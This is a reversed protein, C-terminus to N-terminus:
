KGYDWSSYYTPNLEILISKGSKVNPLLIKAMPHDLSQLYKIMIKEAIFYNFDIDYLIKAIAKGRVGKYPPNQDDVCYYVPSHKSVNQSKRSDSATEIYFKEKKPDFYFWAPHINPENKNDTTGLYINRYGSSLFIKIEDESMPMGFGPSANRINM